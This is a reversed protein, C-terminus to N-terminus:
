DKQKRNGLMRHQSATVGSLAAKALRLPCNETPFKKSCVIVPINSFGSLTPTFVSRIRASSSFRQNEENVSGFVFQRCTLVAIFAILFIEIKTLRGSLGPSRYQFAM